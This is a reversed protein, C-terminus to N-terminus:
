CFRFVGKAFRCSVKLKPLHVLLVQKESDGRFPLKAAIMTVAKANPMHFKTVLQLSGETSYLEITDLGRMLAM